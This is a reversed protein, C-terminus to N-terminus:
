LGLVKYRVMLPGGQGPQPPHRVGKRRRGARKSAGWGGARAAGM